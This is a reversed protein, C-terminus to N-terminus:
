TNPLTDYFQMAQLLVRYDDLVADITFHRCFFEYATCGLQERDDPANALHIIAPIFDELREVVVCAEELGPIQMGTIAARTAVVAQAHNFLLPLKTRYGSDHEYPLIAIDFPRLATKLDAVFGLLEANAEPLLTKLPDRLRSHDGIIRLRARVGNAVLQPHIRRLYAELGVRNATTEVSGLHVIYPPSQAPQDPAPM